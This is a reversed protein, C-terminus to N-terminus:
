LERVRVTNELFSDLAGADSFSLQELKEVADSVPRFYAVHLKKSIQEAAGTHSPSLWRRTELLEVPGIDIPKFTLCAPYDELDPLITSPGEVNLSM